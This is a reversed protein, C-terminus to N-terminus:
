ASRGVSLGFKRQIFHCKPLCNYKHCSSWYYEEHSWDVFNLSNTLERSPGRRQIKPMKKALTFQLIKLAELLKAGLVEAAPLLSWWDSCRTGRACCEHRTHNVFFCVWPFVYWNQQSFEPFILLFWWFSLSFSTLFKTCGRCYQLPEHKLILNWSNFLNAEKM